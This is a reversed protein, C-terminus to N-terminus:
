AIRRLERALRDFNEPARDIIEGWVDIVVPAFQAAAARMPEVGSHTCFLALDAKIFDSFEAAAGFLYSVNKPKAHLLIMQFAHAWIPNAEICFVRRAYFGLHLSLLGLGGGIEVVIKDKIRPALYEAIESAFKNNTVTLVMASKIGHREAYANMAASDEFLRYLARFDTTKSSGDSMGM